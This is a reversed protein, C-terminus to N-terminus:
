CLPKLNRCMGPITPWPFLIIRWNASYQLWTHRLTDRRWSGMKCDAQCVNDWRQLIYSIDVQELDQLQHKQDEPHPQSYDKLQLIGIGSQEKHNQCKEQNPSWFLTLIQSTEEWLRPCQCTIGLAWLLSLIKERYLRHPSCWWSVQDKAWVLSLPNMPHSLLLYFHKTGASLIPPLFIILGAWSLPNILKTSSLQWVQDEM